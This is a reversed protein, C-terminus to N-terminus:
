PGSAAVEKPEGDVDSSETKVRTVRSSCFSFKTTGHAFGAVSVLRGFAETKPRESQSLDNMIGM